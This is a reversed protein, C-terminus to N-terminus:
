DDDGPTVAESLSEVEQHGNTSGEYHQKIFELDVEEERLFGRGDHRDYPFPPIM